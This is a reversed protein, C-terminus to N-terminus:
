IWRVARINPAVNKFYVATYTIGYTEMYTQISFGNRIYSWNQTSLNYTIDHWYSYIENGGTYSYGYTTYYSGVGVYDYSFPPTLNNGILITSYDYSWLSPFMSDQWVGYVYSYTTTM